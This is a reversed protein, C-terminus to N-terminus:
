DFIVKGEVKGSFVIGGMERKVGEKNAEGGEKDAVRVGHEGDGEKRGEESDEKEM